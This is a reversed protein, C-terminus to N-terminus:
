SATDASRDRLIANVIIGVVVALFLGSLNFGIGGIAVKLGDVFTIGLGTVLILGVTVLNRSETFDIKAELLTRMGIAAIMGFLVIEIGGKVPSPITQLVAGFKGVFGLAIAFLAAMRLIAPNYNKTTALVGTNESYTTNPPGGIFGSVATALGDGLLTRHLGPDKFLNKGIVSSNTAMDGIHEMLVIITIPAISLIAGWDFKPLSFFQVGNADLSQFPINIWPAAAIPSLDVQFLNFAALILCLVYGAGLGLLIPILKMFGKAYVMGWAVFALTFLAIGINLMVDGTLPQSLDAWSTADGIAVKSLSIGIIMIVPGTVIPPLVKLIQESGVVRVIGAFLVYMLGAVVVGAMALPVQDALVTDGNKTIAAIAPIFAFSSGLFVPVKFKTCLHFILTGIGASVLATSANLGTLLPVLVTAGFMAFMHQLSLLYEGGKLKFISSKEERAETSM